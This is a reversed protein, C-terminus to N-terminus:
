KSINKPFFGLSLVRHRLLFHTKKIILRNKRKAVCLLLFLLLLFLYGEFITLNKVTQSQDAKKKNFIDFFHTSDSRDDVDQHWNIIMDLIESHRRAQARNPGLGRISINLFECFCFVCIWKRRNLMNILHTYQKKM